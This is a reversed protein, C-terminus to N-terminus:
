TPPSSQYSESTVTSPSSSGLCGMPSGVFPAPVSGPPVITDMPTPTLLPYLGLSFLRDYPAYHSGDGYSVSKPVAGTKIGNEMSGDTGFGCHLRFGLPESAVIRNVMFILPKFEALNIFPQRKVLVM